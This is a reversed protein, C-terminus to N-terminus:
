LRMPQEEQAMNVPQISTSCATKVFGTGTENKDSQQDRIDASHEYGANETISVNKTGAPKRVDAAKKRWGPRKVKM